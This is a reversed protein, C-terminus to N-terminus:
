FVGRQVAGSQRRCTARNKAATSLREQWRGKRDPSWVEFTEVQWWQAAPDDPPVRGRFMNMGTV